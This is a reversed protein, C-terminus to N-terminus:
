YKQIFERLKEESSTDDLREVEVGNEIYMFTPVSTVSIAALVESKLEKDDNAADTDYYFVEYNEAEVVKTLIPAFVQCVSCTPRGVYLFGTKKESLFDLVDQNGVSTLVSYNVTEDAGGAQSQNDDQKAKNGNISVVSAVVVVLLAIVVIAACIIPAAYNEQKKETKKTM